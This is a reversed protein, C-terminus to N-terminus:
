PRELSRGLSSVAAVVVFGVRSWFSGSCSWLPNPLEAVRMGFGGFGSAWRFGNARVRPPPGLCRPAHRVSVERYGLPM